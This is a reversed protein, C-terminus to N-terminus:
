DFKRKTATYRELYKDYGELTEFQKVTFLNGDTNILAVNSKGMLDVPIAKLELCNQELRLVKLRPCKAILVSIVKIRNENLNLEICNLAEVYDDIQSIRNSSLDLSDLKEIQCLEKPIQSLHNHSLNITKLNKLQIISPPVQQLLNESLNLNELKIMAAIENPLFQLKNSALNLTKLTQMKAFLGTPIETIRNNSLDLNRLCKAIPLIEPPIKNLKFNRLQLIGTKQSNDIHQSMENGM